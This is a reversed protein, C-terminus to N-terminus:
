SSGNAVPTKTAEAPESVPAAPIGWFSGLTTDVAKIVVVAGIGWALASVYDGFTGWPGDGYVTPVGTLVALAIAVALVLFLSFPHLVSRGIGLVREFTEDLADSASSLLGTFDITGLGTVAGQDQRRSQPRMPQQEEAAPPHAEAVKAIVDDAVALREEVKGALLEDPSQAHWLYWRAARLERLADRVLRQEEWSLRDDQFRQLGKLREETNAWANHFVALTTTLWVTRDRFSKIGDLAVAEAPAEPTLHKKAAILVGPMDAVGPPASPPSFAAVAAELTGLEKAPPTGWQEALKLRAISKEIDALRSDTPDIALRIPRYLDRPNAAVDDKLRWTAGNAPKPLSAEESFEKQRKAFTERAQKQANQLAHVRWWVSTVWAILVGILVGAVMMAVAPLTDDTSRVTLALTASDGEEPELDLTGEYTTGPQLKLDEINLKISDGDLEGAVPLPDGDGDQIVGLVKPLEAGDKVPALPIMAGKLNDAGVRRVKTVTWKSAAFRPTTAAPEPATVVLSLRAQHNGVTATIEGRRQVGPEVQELGRIVLPVDVKQGAPVQVSGPALLVSSGAVAEARKSPFDPLRVALTAVVPEDFNSVLKVDQSKSIELEGDGGSVFFLPPQEPQAAVVPRCFGVMFLVVSGAITLARAIGSM